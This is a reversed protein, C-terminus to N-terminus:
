SWRREVQLPNSLIDDVVIAIGGILSADTGFSSLLVQVESGYENLSYQTMKEKSSPLLYDGISALPGGLIIKEPNFINIICAFGQGLAAGAEALSAIAVKDNLDAAQKVMSISLPANKESILEPLISNQQKDLCTQVRYLISDQNAYTEWCGCNGCHCKLPPYDAIIPSHGIEGAYGNKGRHLNGNLFLGGGIGVGAFVFIFDKSLRTTGFLYEAIAAANADNDVFTKLETYESFIKKLPINRWQLNPAYMLVGQDIDVIGPASIGIGLMKQQNNKCTDIAESVLSLAQKIVHDPLETPSSEIRKRLQIKGLFDTLIVAVFDVGFQVGIIYGVNPNIKLLTAPRGTGVSNTGSELILDRKLLDDVLSSVTSKNLGTAMAIQARSVPSAIHIHRLVVSLNVKRVFAQDATRKKSM